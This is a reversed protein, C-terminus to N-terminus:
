QVGTEGVGLVAEGAANAQGMRGHDVDYRHLVHAHVAHHVVGAPPGLVGVVRAPVRVPRLHREDREEIRAMERRIMQLENEEIVSRNPIQLLVRDDRCIGLAVLGAALRAVHDDLEAYTLGTTADIVLLVEHPADPIRRRIVNRLKELERMLNAKAHLRGATDLIVVDYDEKMALVLGEEGTGVSDVTHSAEALGGSVFEVLECDDEVLLIRM